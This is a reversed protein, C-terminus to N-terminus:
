CYVLFDIISYSEINISGKNTVLRTHNKVLVRTLKVQM